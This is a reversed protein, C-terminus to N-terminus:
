GRQLRQDWDYQQARASAEMRSIRDDLGGRPHAARPGHWASDDRTCFETYGRPETKMLLALLLYVAGVPFFGTIIFAIVVLMRTWFVSFNLYDALGRCVGFFMRRRSRYPGSSYAYSM